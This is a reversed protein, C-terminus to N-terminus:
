CPGWFNEFILIKFTLKKWRRLFNFVEFQFYPKIEIINNKILLILFKRCNESFFRLLHAKFWTTQYVFWKKCQFVVLIENNILKTCPLIFNISKQFESKQFSRLGMSIWNEFNSLKRQTHQNKLLFRELQTGRTQFSWLRYQWISCEFM